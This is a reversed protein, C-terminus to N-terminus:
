SSLNRRAREIFDEEPNYSDETHVAVQCEPCWFRPEEVDDRVLKTDCDDHYFNPIEPHRGIAAKPAVPMIGELEIHWDDLVGSDQIAGLINRKEDDDLERSRGRLHFILAYRHYGDGAEVLKGEDRM